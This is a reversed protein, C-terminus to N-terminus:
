KNHNKDTRVKLMGILITRAYFGQYIYITISIAILYYPLAYDGINSVLLYGLLAAASCLLSKIIANLPLPETPQLNIYPLFRRFFYENLVLSLPYLTLVILLIKIIEM